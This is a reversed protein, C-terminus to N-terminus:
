DNKILSVEPIPADLREDDIGFCKIIARRIRAAPQGNHRLINIIAQIYAEKNALGCLGAVNSSPLMSKQNYVRLISSYDGSAVYGQFERCLNEYLKRPRIENVLNQMHKELANINPFKGDIRCETLRKVRHRTHLLAQKHLDTRFQGIISRRVSDFVKHENKGHVSAVTRIVEELMLINEIEAVDPVYINRGRLYGVEQPSRRDRDVIGRSLLHHLSNLDNFTRTAEIVKDCGGLSKVTYDRFVLPYLKADISHKADGEIFLMPKRAGVLTMYMDDSIGADPPLVAYDWRKIEFYFKRVWVVKANRRSSLFDIDHTTYIFTCDPRLQEVKDWIIGTISPHLFLGPSDVFVVGNEPALLASGFYYLVAKEGDSLKFSSYLNEGDDKRAFLVEGRARKVKNDPFVELWASIMKDLLSEAIAHNGGGNKGAGSVKHNILNLMEYYIMIVMMRDFQSVIDDRLFAAKSVAEDYLNDISGPLKDVEHKIYLANLASIRYAKASIESMLWDTFRTKGAGNAGIIVLSKGVVPIRDRTGDKHPPLLIEM